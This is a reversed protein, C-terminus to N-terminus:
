LTSSIPEKEESMLRIAHALVSTGDEERGTNLSHMLQDVPLGHQLALSLILSADDLLIDMDSGIKSGRIFVERAKGDEPDIGFSIYYRNTDMELLKTVAPRRSPLKKRM